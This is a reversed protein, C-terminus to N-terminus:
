WLPGSYTEGNTDTGTAGNQHREELIGLGLAGFCVDKFVCAWSLTM